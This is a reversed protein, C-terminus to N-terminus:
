AGAAIGVLKSVHADAPLGRRAGRGSGSPAPWADPLRGTTIVDDIVVVRRGAVIEAITRSAGRLNAASRRASLGPHYADRPTPRPASHSRLGHNRALASALLLGSQDAACPDPPAPRSPPDHEAYSLARRSRVSRPEGPATATSSGTSPWPWRKLVVAATLYLAAARGSRLGASAARLRAVCGATRPPLHVGCCPCHLTPSRQPAARTVCVSESRLLPRATRLRPFFPALILHAWRAIPEVPHAAQRRPAPIASAINTRSARTPLHRTLFKKSSPGRFARAYKVSRRADTRM